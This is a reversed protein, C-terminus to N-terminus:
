SDLPAPENIQICMDGNDNLFICVEDKNDLTIVVEGNFVGVGDITKGIMHEFYAQLTGRLKTVTM